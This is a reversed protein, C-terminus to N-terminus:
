MNQRRADAFITVIGTRECRCVDHVMRLYCAGTAGAMVAERCGSLVWGVDGAAVGAVVTM